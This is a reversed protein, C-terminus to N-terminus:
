HLVVTSTETLFASGERVVQHQDTLGSTILVKDGDIFGIRVPIKKVGFRGNEGKKPGLVFVFGSKGVGEAITEIPVRTYSQSEAPQLTVQAFLGPALRKGEPHVRIEAGYLKTVPDAAQSLQTITGEFDQEPYAEIHVSAKNGLRLRTWDKDTIGVKVIWDQARNSSLIYVPSGPGVTEGENAIKGIVTGDMTATVRAHASNFKAISLNEAALHSGTQANQFQELTAATDAYLKSARALDREAKGSALEAQSVHANIETLDLTALLQGKRVIQGEVVLMRDIIGGTKFGLRAEQASSIVGSVEVPITKEVKEVPSLTVAIIQDSDTIEEQSVKGAESSCSWIFLTLCPLLIYIKKM